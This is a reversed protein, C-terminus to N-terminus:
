LVDLELHVLQRLEYVLHIGSAPRFFFEIAKGAAELTDERTIGGDKAAAHEEAEGKRRILNFDGPKVLDGFTELMHRCRHIIGNEIDLALAKM